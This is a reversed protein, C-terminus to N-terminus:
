LAAQTCGCLDDRHILVVNGQGWTKCGKVARGTASMWDALFPELHFVSVNRFLQWAGSLSSSYFAQTFCMLCTFTLSPHIDLALLQTEFLGVGSEGYSRSKGTQASFSMFVPSLEVSLARRNGTVAVLIICTSWVANM